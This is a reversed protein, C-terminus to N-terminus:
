VRTPFTVPMNFGLPQRFGAPLLVTLRYTAYGMPEMRVQGTKYSTWYAPVKGFLDRDARKSLFDNPLLLKEWYFEWEGNLKTIFDDNIQAKRLDMVGEAAFGPRESSRCGCLSLLAFSLIIGTIKM